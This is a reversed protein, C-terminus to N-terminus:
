IYWDVVLYVLQGSFIGFPWLIHWISMFHVLMKLEWSGGFYVGIPIKSVFIYTADPLGSGVSAVMQQQLWKFGNGESFHNRNPWFWKWGL